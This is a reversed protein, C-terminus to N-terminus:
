NGAEKNYNKTFHIKGVRPPFNMELYVLEDKSLPRQTFCSMDAKLYAKVSSARMEFDSIMSLCSEQAYVWIFGAGISLLTKLTHKSKAFLLSTILSHCKWPVTSDLCTILITFYCYFQVWPGNITHPLPLHLSVSAVWCWLPSLKAQLWNLKISVVTWTKESQRLPHFYGHDEPAAWLAPSLHFHQHFFGPSCPAMVCCEVSGARSCRSAGVEWLLIKEPGGHDWQAGQLQEDNQQQQLHTHAPIHAPPRAACPALCSSPAPTKKPLQATPHSAVPLLHWCFM